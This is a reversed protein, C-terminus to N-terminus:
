KAEQPPLELHCTPCDLGTTDVANATVKYVQWENSCDGGSCFAWKYGDQIKGYKHSESGCKPCRPLEDDPLGFGVRWPNRKVPEGGACQYGNTCKCPTVTNHIGFEQQCCECDCEVQMTGGCLECKKDRKCYDM